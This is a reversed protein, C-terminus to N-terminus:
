GSLRNLMIVLFILFFNSEITFQLPLRCYRFSSSFFWAVSYLVPSINIAKYQSNHFRFKENLHRRGFSVSILPRHISRFTAAFDPFLIRHIETTSFTFPLIFSSDDEIFQSSTPRIHTLANQIGHIHLKLLCSRHHYHCRYWTTEHFIIIIIEACLLQKISKRHQTFPWVTSQERLRQM